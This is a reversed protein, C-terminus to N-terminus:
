GCQIKVPEPLHDLRDTFAEWFQFSFLHLTRALLGQVLVAQPFPKPFTNIISSLNFNSNPERFPSKGFISFTLHNWMDISCTFTM